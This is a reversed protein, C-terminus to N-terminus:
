HTRLPHLQRGEADFNAPDLWAEMAKRVRPWERDTLAYWATDRNRGKFVVAQRFTGEYTFGLREAAARSPANLSDCKWEYRRYGLDDFVYRMLLFQAETSIPTRQIARSFTVYGVEIAGNAPDHRMLSLTGLARGTSTAVVAYHRPDEVLAATTAWDRYSEPTPFPGVSLYTWDSDDPANAYASYLDDTHRDPALREVACYRGPLRTASPLAVPAWHPVPVGVPQGYENTLTM